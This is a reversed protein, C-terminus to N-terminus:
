ARFLKSAIFQLIKEAVILKPLRDLKVQPTDATILIVENEDSGFVKHPESVDNVCILDLKKKALKIRAHM